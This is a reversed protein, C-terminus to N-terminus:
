LVRLSKDLRAKSRNRLYETLYALAALGAGLGIALVMSAEPFFFRSIAVGFGAGLIVRTILVQTRM